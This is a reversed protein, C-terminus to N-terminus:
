RLFFDISPDAALGAAPGPGDPLGTSVFDGAFALGGPQGGAHALGAINNPSLATTTPSDLSFFGFNSFVAANIECEFGGALYTSFPAVVCAPAAHISSTVAVAAFAVCLLRTM